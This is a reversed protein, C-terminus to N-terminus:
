QELAQDLEKKLDKWQKRLLKEEDKTLIRFPVELQSGPFKIVLWHQGTKIGGPVKFFLRGVCARDPALEVRDYSMSSPPGSLDAFFRFSCAHSAEIPFYNISDRMMQARKTLAKLYGADAFEKQTALPIEAGDPTRISLAERTLIYREVGKRVTVGTDLLMWETGVSDNAVRYGLTAYGENNYAARVFEGMLTFIEPVTPQPPTVGSPLAPQQAAAPGILTVAALALLALRVACVTRTM